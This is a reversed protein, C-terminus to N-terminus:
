VIPKVVFDGDFIALFTEADIKPSEPLGKETRFENVAMLTYDGFWGDKDQLAIAYGLENLRRQLHHVTLSKRSLENKYVCSDLRVEDVVGNGVVEPNIPAENRREAIQEPTVPTPVKYKKDEM